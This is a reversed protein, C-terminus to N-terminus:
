SAVGPRFYSSADGNTDDFLLCTNELDTVCTRANNVEVALRLLVTMLVTAQDGSGYSVFGM